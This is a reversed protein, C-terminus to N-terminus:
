AGARVVRLTERVVVSEEDTHLVRVTCASGDTSIVPAGAENRADDLRVGLHDLGRSIRARVAAANEGVGASFVLTELGGLTAALAGVAQRARYCFLSIADAANPDSAECGLLDRMDGSSGSVGLLGSRRNLLEDLEDTSLRGARLLYLLVGPDLNGSRTAM